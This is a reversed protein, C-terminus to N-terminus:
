CVISNIGTGLVLIIETVKGTFIATKNLIDTSSPHSVQQTNQCHKQAKVKQHKHLNENMWAM